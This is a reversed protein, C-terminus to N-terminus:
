SRFYCHWTREVMDKGGLEDKTRRERWDDLGTWLEFIRWLPTRPHLPRRKWFTSCGRCFETAEYDSWELGPTEKPTAEPGPQSSCVCASPDQEDEGAAYSSELGNRAGYRPNLRDPLPRPGLRGGISLSKGTM